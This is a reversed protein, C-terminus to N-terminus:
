AVEIILAAAWTVVIQVFHFAQDQILNIKLKNAKLDDIYAHFVTNFLVMAALWVDPLEALFFLPLFTVLSWYLGHELLACKYDNGYKKWRREFELNCEDACQERWWIEQKGNCFWGQLTYDAFLHGLFMLLLLKM